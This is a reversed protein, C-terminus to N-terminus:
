VWVRFDPGNAMWERHQIVSPEDEILNLPRLPERECQVLEKHSRLCVPLDQVSTDTRDAKETPDEPGAPPPPIHMKELIHRLRDGPPLLKRHGCYLTKGGVRFGYWWCILCGYYSPTGSIGLVEEMGRFDSVVNTIRVRCRFVVDEVEEGEIQNNLTAYADKVEIGVADLYLLEDVIIQWKWRDTKEVDPPFPPANDYNKGSGPGIGFLHVFGKKQRIEPPLNNVIGTAPSVSFSYDDGYPQFPDQSIQLSMHKPNNEFTPDLNPDYLFPDNVDNIDFIMNPDRSKREQSRTMLEATIVNGWLYEVHGSLPNHIYISTNEKDKATGCICVMAAKYECRYIFRCRNCQTYHVSINWKCVGYKTLMSLAAKYNLPLLKAAQKHIESSHESSMTKALVEMAGTYAVEKWGKLAKARVGEMVADIVSHYVQDSVSADELNAHRRKEFRLKM